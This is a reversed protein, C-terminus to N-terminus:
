AQTSVHEAVLDLLLSIDANRHMSSLSIRLRASHLPVTPPRIAAVFLNNAILKEQLALTQQNSGTLICKIPTCDSSLLPIRRAAAERNFFQILAQLAQVRWPESELIKLSALAAACNAPPLATSYCYTRAKQMLFEIQNHDGSVLAGMGGMAKGLPTILLSIDESSLPFHECVGKGHQGLTGFGHADDIILAAHNQRALTTLQSIDTIAGTMSFVSESILLRSDSLRTTLLQAAHQHDQHRYRLHAARSLTIGDIISAHCHKDAIISSHRNAFSTIVGLNAHYGSNFLLARERGIFAAFYEELAQHASSYGTILPSSTSGVGFENVCKIFAEKLFHNQALGLYDNDAFNIMHRQDIIHSTDRRGSVVRRVRQLDGAKISALDNALNTLAM